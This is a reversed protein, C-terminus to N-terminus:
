PSLPAGLKKLIMGVRLWTSYDDLQSVSLCDCLARIDQLEEATATTPTTPAAEVQPAITRTTTPPTAPKSIIMEFLEDPLKPINKLRESSGPTWTYNGYGEIKSHPCLQM